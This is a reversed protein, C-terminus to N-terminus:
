APKDPRRLVSIEVLPIEWPLLCAPFPQDTVYDAFSHRQLINGLKLSKLMSPYIKQTFKYLFAYINFIAPFVLEFNWSNRLLTIM